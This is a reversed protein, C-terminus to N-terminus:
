STTRPVVIAIRVGSRKLDDTLGQQTLVIEIPPRELELADYLVRGAGTRICLGDAEDLSFGAAAPHQPAHAHVGVNYRSRQPGHGRRGIARDRRLLSPSPAARM